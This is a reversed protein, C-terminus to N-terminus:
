GGKSFTFSKELSEGDPYTKVTRWNRGTKRAIENKSLDEERLHKIYDVEPMALM